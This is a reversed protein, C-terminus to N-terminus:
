NAGRKYGRKGKQTVKVWEAKNNMSNKFKAVIKSSGRGTEIGMAEWYFYSATVFERPKAEGRFEHEPVQGTELIFGIYDRRYDKGTRNNFTRYFDTPIPIELYQELLEEQEDLYEFGTREENLMKEDQQSLVPKFGEKYYHVIEGWFQNVIEQTLDSVPHYKQLNKSCHIPLFRRAGTRDKQYEEQNTTRAIVFNKAYKEVSTGYPRRFSVETQTIFKKLDAFSTKNSVAMEDDNVILAKLMKALEDKEEFNKFSDTYWDCAVKTLFTTKGSGQGGVLDLVLDFKSYPNYVKAVAGVFFIKTMKETLDSEKAGLYDPLLNRVRKTKDWDKYCQEMYDKVPNYKNAYAIKNIVKVLLLNDFLVDYKEEFHELIATIYVDKLGDNRVKVNKLEFPEKIEIEQTFDNFVFKDKLIPDHEIAVRINRISKAKPKGYQNNIFLGEEFKPKIVKAKDDPKDKEIQFEQIPVTLVQLALEQNFEPM